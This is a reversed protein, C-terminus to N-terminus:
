FLELLKGFSLRPVSFSEQCASTIEQLYDDAGDRITSIYVFTSNPFQWGADGIADQSSDLERIGWSGRSGM